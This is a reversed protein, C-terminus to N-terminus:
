QEVPAGYNPQPEVFRRPNPNEPRSVSQLVKFVDERQRANDPQQEAKEFAAATQKFAQDFMFNHLTSDNVRFPTIPNGM